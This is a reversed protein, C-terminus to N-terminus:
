YIDEVTFTHSITKTTINSVNVFSQGVSLREIGGKIYNTVGGGIRADDPLLNDMAWMQISNNLLRVNAKKTNNFSKARVASFSPIALASLLGIVAVAVSTEVLTFGGRRKVM